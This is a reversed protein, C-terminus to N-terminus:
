LDWGNEQINFDPAYVLRGGVELEQDELDVSYIPRTSYDIDEPLFIKLM